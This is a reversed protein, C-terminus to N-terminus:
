HASRSLGHPGGEGQPIQSARPHRRTPPAGSPLLHLAREEPSSPSASPYAYPHNSRSETVHQSAKHPRCGEPPGAATDSEKRPVRDKDQPVVQAHSWLNPPAPHPRRKANPTRAVRARLFRHPKVRYSSIEALLGGVGPELEGELPPPASPAQVRQELRGAKTSDWVMSHGASGGRANQSLPDSFSPLM